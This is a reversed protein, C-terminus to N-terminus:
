FWNALSIVGLAGLLGMSLGIVGVLIINGLLWGFFLAIGLSVPNEIRVLNVPNDIGKGM